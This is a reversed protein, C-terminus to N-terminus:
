AATDKIQRLHAVHLGKHCKRCLVQLDDLAHNAKQFDKHHTDYPTDSRCIECRYEAREWALAKTKRSWGRAYPTAARGDEWMPNLEGPRGCRLRWEPDCSMELGRLRAAERMEPTWSERIKEVVEPSHKWGKGRIGRGKLADSMRQRQEATRIYPGTCSRCFSSKKQKRNGCKPCLNYHRDNKDMGVNYWQTGFYCCILLRPM